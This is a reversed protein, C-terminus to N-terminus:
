KHILLGNDGNNDDEEDGSYYRPGNHKEYYGLLRTFIEECSETNGYLQGNIKSREFLKSSIIISHQDLKDSISNLKTLRGMDRTGGVGEIIKNTVV